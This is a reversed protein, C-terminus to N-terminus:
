KALWTWVPGGDKDRLILTNGGKVIERVLIVETGVADKDKAKAGTVELQDGKQFNMDLSSLFKAPCLCVEVPGKDTKLILHTDGDPGNPQKVEDVSGKVTVEATKDYKPGSQKQAFALPIALVFVFILIIKWVFAAKM